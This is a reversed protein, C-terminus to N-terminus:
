YYRKIYTKIKENLHIHVSIADSSELLEDLTVQIVGDINKEIDYGIVKM